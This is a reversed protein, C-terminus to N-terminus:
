FLGGRFGCLPTARRRDTWKTQRTKRTKKTRQNTKRDPWGARSMGHRAEPREREDRWERAEREGGCLGDGV